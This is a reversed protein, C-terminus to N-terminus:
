GVFETVPAPKPEAEDDPTIVEIRTPQTQPEPAPPTIEAPEPQDSAEVEAINTHALTLITARVLEAQELQERHFTIRSEIQELTVEDDGDVQYFKGNAGKVIELM